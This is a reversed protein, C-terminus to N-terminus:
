SDRTWPDVARPDLFGPRSEAGFSIAAIGLLVVSALVALIIFDM